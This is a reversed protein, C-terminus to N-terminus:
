PQPRLIFMCYDVKSQADVLGTTSVVPRSAKRTELDSVRSRRPASVFQTLGLQEQNALALPRAVGDARAFAQTARVSSLAEQAPPDMAMDFSFEPFDEYLRFADTILADLITLRSRVFVIAVNPVKSQRDTNKDVFRSESLQQRISDDVVIPSEFAIDHSRLLEEFSRREWAEKSVTLDVVLFVNEFSLTLDNEKKSPELRVVSENPSSNSSKSADSPATKPTMLSPAVAVQDIPQKETDKAGSASPPPTPSHEAIANRDPTSSGRELPNENGKSEKSPSGDSSQVVTSPDAKPDILGIPKSDPLRSYAVLLLSAALGSLGVWIAWQRASSKSGQDPKSLTQVTGIAPSSEAARQAALELVKSSFANSLHSSPIRTFVDRLARMEELWRVAEPSNSLLSQVTQAEEISIEGDLYGNLLEETKEDRAFM